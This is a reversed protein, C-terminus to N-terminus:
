FLFGASLSLTHQTAANDAVKKDKHNCENDPAGSFDGCATLVYDFAFVLISYNLRFGSYFRWRVITDQEPFVANANLDLAGPGQKYADVDPTTDIVQSRAIIFLVASGLYPVFTVSGFLGFSKSVETDVQAMTLDLQSSGVMRMGAGRVSLSPIAWDHYGEHLAFKAYFMVAFLDSQMLKTAAAGLEFSPLPLWIGKRAMLTVTSAFGPLDHKTGQGDKGSAGRQWPCRDVLEMEVCKRNSISTFSPDLTFQFGSYGITDAPALFRPSLVVGLESALQRFAAQDHETPNATEGPM